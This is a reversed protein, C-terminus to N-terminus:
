KLRGKFSEFCYECINKSVKNKRKHKLVVEHEFKKTPTKCFGCKNEKKM